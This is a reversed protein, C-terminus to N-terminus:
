SRRCATAARRPPAPDTFVAGVQGFWRGASGLHAALLPNNTVTTPV